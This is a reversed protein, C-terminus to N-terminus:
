YEAILTRNRGEQKAAYLAKDAKHLLIKADMAHTPWTAVGASLTTKAEGGDIHVSIEAFIKRLTEAREFGTDSDTGPLVLVFEEGGFRFASDGRRTTSTLVDALAVLVRDGTQHGYTDNIQKFYDIDIMVLSLPKGERENQSMALELIEHFYRRNFLNTLPDRLAQERLEDQLSQIQTIQMRLSNNVAHIENRMKETETIDEALSLVGVTDGNGDKQAVNSWRCLIIRGDRTQNRNTGTVIGGGWAQAMVKLVYDREEEPVIRELRQGLMDLKPWGFIEEAAHNWNTVCNQKDFIILALPATEYISQYHQESAKLSLETQKRQTIERSLRHNIRVIYITIGGAILSFSLIGGAVWCLWLPIHLADPYYLFDKIPFDKPLMDLEAYVDAIHQWRGPYMYGIAVFDPRLLPIMQEYEFLLQAKSKRNGFRAIILDAMEEPHAMAYEWGRLTAERFAAVIKPHEQLYTESTFFNDGYFDIGASRPSFVSYQLGAKALAYPEDTIYVSMADVKDALLEEIGFTHPFFQINSESLPIGERKLYALLEASHREIMVRKGAIQHINRIGSSELSVLALSSHQFIVGLVIVPLGRARYLLLDSAGVGFESKGNIVSEVSDEDPNAERFTVNLGVERYFGKEQAAYYGAFQFQHKWLLQLSVPQLVQVALAQQGFCLLVFALNLSIRALMTQYDVGM